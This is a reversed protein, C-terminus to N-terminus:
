IIYIYKRVHCPVEHCALSMLDSLEMSLDEENKSQKENFLFGRAGAVSVVVDVLCRIGQTRGFCKFVLADSTNQKVLAGYWFITIIAKRFQQLTEPVVSCTLMNSIYWLIRTPERQVAPAVSFFSGGGEELQATSAEIQNSVAASIGGQCPRLELQHGRQM